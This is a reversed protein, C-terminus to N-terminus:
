FSHSTERALAIEQRLADDTTTAAIEKLVRYARLSRSGVTTNPDPIWQPSENVVATLVRVASGDGIKGLADIAITEIYKGSVLARELYPVALPESIGALALAAERAERVSSSREIQRTLRDCVQSL